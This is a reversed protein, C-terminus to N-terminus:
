TCSDNAPDECPPDVSAADGSSCASRPIPVVVDALTAYFHSLPKSTSNFLIPSLHALWSVFNAPYSVLIHALEAIWRTAVLYYALLLESLDQDLTASSGQFELWNPIGSNQLLCKTLELIVVQPVILSFIYRGAQVLKIM